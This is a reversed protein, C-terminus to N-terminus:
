KLFKSTTNDALIKGGTQATPCYFVTYSRYSVTRINDGCDQCPEGNKNHVKSPRDASKGIDDLTREHDTAASVVTRIAQGLAAVQKNSLKSTTTFPSLKAAFCIENALLRGLGALLRQNRLVGHIRKSTDGFIQALEADTITSAEPGLESLPEHVLPDGSFAWVGAKRESGAETLLWASDDEFVWRAIGLRPRKSRKLDPRLRGGQMLHVAHTHDAFRLLLYKGRREVATVNRGEAADAPPDFTKLSAFNLLEFSRLTKGVLHDSMREAHAQLEPAEPM